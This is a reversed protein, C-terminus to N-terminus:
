KNIRFTTGFSIATMNRMTDVSRYKEDSKQFPRVSM